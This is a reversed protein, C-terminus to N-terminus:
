RVVAMIRVLERGIHTWAKWKVCRLWVLEVASSM